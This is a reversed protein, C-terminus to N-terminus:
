PERVVQVYEVGIADRLDVERGRPDGRCAQSRVGADDRLHAVAGVQGPEVVPRHGGVRALAALYHRAEELVGGVAAQTEAFRMHHVAHPRGHPDVDLAVHRAAKGGAIMDPPETAQLVRRVRPVLVLHDLPLDDAHALGVAQAYQGGGVQVM